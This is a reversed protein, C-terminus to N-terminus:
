SWGQLLMVDPPGEPFGDRENGATYVNSAAKIEPMFRDLVIMLNYYVLPELEAGRDVRDLVKVLTELPCKEGFLWPFMSGLIHEDEPDLGLTELNISRVRQLTYLFLRLHEIAKEQEMEM